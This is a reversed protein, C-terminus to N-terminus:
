NMYITFFVVTFLSVVVHHLTVAHKEFVFLPYFNEIHKKRVHLTPVFQRLHLATRSCSLSQRTVQNRNRNQNQSQNRTLSPSQTHNRRLLRKRARHHARACRSVLSVCSNRSNPTWDLGAHILGSITITSSYWLVWCHM